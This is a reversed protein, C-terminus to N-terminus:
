EVAVIALVTVFNNLAPNIAQAWMGRIRNMRVPVGGSPNIAVKDFQQQCQEKSNGIYYNQIMLWCERDFDDIPFPPDGPTALYVRVTNSTPM